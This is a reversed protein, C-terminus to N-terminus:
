IEVTQREINQMMQQYKRERIPVYNPTFPFEVRAVTEENQNGIRLYQPDFGQNKLMIIIFALGIGSGELNDAHDAYFDALSDYSMSTKLKERMRKEDIPPIPANNIVEVSLGDKNYIYRVKVKFNLAQAKLLYDKLCSEKIKEKFMATGKEWDEPNDIDLGQEVFFIRKMLAKTANVVLEKVVTYALDLLDLRNNKELIEKLKLYVRDRLYEAWSDPIEATSEKSIDEKKEEM